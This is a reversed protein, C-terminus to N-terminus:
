LSIRYSVLRNLIRKKYSFLKCSLLGWSNLFKLFKLVPNQSRVFDIFEYANLIGSKVFKEAAWLKTSTCEDPLKYFIHIIKANRRNYTPIIISQGEISMIKLIKAFTKKILSDSRMLRTSVSFNLSKFIYLQNKCLSFIILGEEWLAQGQSPAHAYYTILLPSSRIISM